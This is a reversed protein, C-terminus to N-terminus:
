CCHVALVSETQSDSGTLGVAWASSDSSAGVGTLDNFTNGPNPSGVRSWAHGNWHLILTQRSGNLGGVAWASAASTAAVSQLFSDPGPHPSAVQTWKTGNWRLVLTASVGSSTNFNGVAWANGASTAGVAALTARTGIPRVPVSSWTHGNWHLILASTTQHTSIQGVAWADRASTAAVGTLTDNAGSPGPNPSTVRAWSQGNWRLILTRELGSVPDVNLGVAWVNGASVVRVGTLTSSGNLGRIPAAASWSTGDWHEILVRTPGNLFDASGVAWIDDASVARVGNLVNNGTGPSPTPVVTWSTGDWHEALTQRESDTRDFGVTWADCASLVAVANLENEASGPSAPQAGTFSRCGAASAGTPAALALGALLLPVALLRLARGARCREPM